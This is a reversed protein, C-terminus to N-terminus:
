NKSDLLKDAFKSVSSAEDLVWKEGEHAYSWGEKNRTSLDKVSREIYDDM